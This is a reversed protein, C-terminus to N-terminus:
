TLSYKILVPMPVVTIASGITIVNPTATGHKREDITLRIGLHQLVLKDHEIHHRSIAVLANPCDGIATIYLYVVAIHRCRYRHLRVNTTLGLTTTGFLFTADAIVLRSIGQFLKFRTFTKCGVKKSIFCTKWLKDIWHLKTNARLTTQPSGSPLGVRLPFWKFFHIIRQQDQRVVISVADSVSNNLKGFNVIRSTKCEPIATHDNNRLRINEKQLVRVTVVLCIYPLNNQLPQVTCIRVMCCITQHNARIATQEIHTANVVIVADLLGPTRRMGATTVGHIAEIRTGILETKMSADPRVRMAHAEIVPAIVIRRVSGTTVTVLDNWLFRTELHAIEKLPLYSWNSSTAHDGALM